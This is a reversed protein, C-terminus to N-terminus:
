WTVVDDDLMCVCVFLALVGDVEGLGDVGIDGLAYVDEGIDKLVGLKLIGGDLALAIDDESLRLLDLLLNLLDDEVVEVGGGVLVLGKASGDEAGALVDTVDGPGLEGVVDLVVVSSVAHNEDTGTTDGV